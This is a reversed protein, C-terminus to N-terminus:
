DGQLSRGRTEASGPLPQTRLSCVLDVGVKGAQLKTPKLRVAEGDRQVVIAVPVDGAANRARDLAATDATKVKGLGAIIDGPRVGAREAASGPVVRSVIRCAHDNLTSDRVAGDAGLAEWRGDRRGAVFRGRVDPKGDPHWTALPGDPVGRDFGVELRKQGNPWWQVVTGTGGDLQFAGLIEGNPGWQTWRGVPVGGDYQGEVHKHAGGPHWSTWTGVMTGADCEGVLAAPGSDQPFRGHLDGRLSRCFAPAAMGWPLLMADEPSFVTLEAAEIPRLLVSETMRIAMQEGRNEADLEAVASSEQWPVVTGADFLVSRKGRALLENLKAAPGAVTIPGRDFRATETARIELGDSRVASLEYDSVLTYALGDTEGTEETTWKAGVGVPEAPLPLTFGAFREIARAVAGVKVHAPLPRLTGDPGAEVFEIWQDLVRARDDVILEGRAIVRPGEPTVWGALVDVNYEGPEGPQVLLDVLVSSAPQGADYVPQGDLREVEREVTIQLEQRSGALPAIRLLHRPAQGAGVLTVPFAGHDSAAQDDGPDVERSGVDSAVGSRRCGGLCLLVVIVGPRTWTKAM